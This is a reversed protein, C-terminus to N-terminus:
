RTTQMEEYQKVAQIARADGQSARGYIETMVAAVGDQVAMRQQATLAVTMRLKQLRTVADELDGAKYAVLAQKM